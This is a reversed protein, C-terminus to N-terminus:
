NQNNNHENLIRSYGIANKMAADRVSVQVCPKTRSITVTGSHVAAIGLFKGPLLRRASRGLRSRNSSQNRARILFPM